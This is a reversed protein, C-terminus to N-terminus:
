QLERRTYCQSRLPLMECLMSRIVVESISTQPLIAPLMADLEAATEATFFTSVEAQLVDLEAM